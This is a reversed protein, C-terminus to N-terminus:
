QTRGYGQAQWNFVQADVNNGTSDLCEIDFGTADISSVKERVGLPPDVLTVQVRPISIFAGDFTIRKIGASSSNTGPVIRDPMDVTFTAMSVSPTALGSESRLVLRFKFASGVVVGGTLAEWILWEPGSGLDVRRSVQVELEFESEDVGSISQLENLSPWDKILPAAASNGTVMVGAVVYCAFEQTLDIMEDFEFSGESHYSGELNLSLELRGDAVQTNNHVGVFASLDRTEVVNNLKSQGASVVVRATSESLRGGHDKSRVLFCGPRVSVATSSGPWTVTAVPLASVWNADPDVSFRVEYLSLDLANPQPKWSLTGTEGLVALSLGAVDEPPSTLAKAVIRYPASPVSVIGSATSCVAAVEYVRGEELPPTLIAGASALQWNTQKWQGGEERWMAAYFQPVAGVGDQPEVVVAIRPKTSRDRERQMSREDSYVSLVLPPLPQNTRPTKVETLFPDYEPIEGSDADLVGPAALVCYLTATLDPRLVRDRVLLDVPEETVSEILVLDEVNVDIAPVDRTIVVWDRGLGQPRAVTLLVEGSGDPRRVRMNLKWAVESDVVLLEDGSDSWSGLPVNDSSGGIQVARDSWDTPDEMEDLVIKRVYGDVVVVEEVVGSSIGMLVEDRVVRIKDGVDHTLHDIGVDLTIEERRLEGNALHYRGLLYANGQEAQGKKIVLGPVEMNEFIKANSRDYGDNYVLIEHPQWDRAESIVGVRLAHVEKFRRQRMRFNQSNHPTYYGRVHDKARDPMPSYKFDRRMARRRGAACIERLFEARTGESKFSDYTWHEEAFWSDIEELDLEDDTAARGGGRGQLVACYAAAPHNTPRPETWEGDERERAIMRAVVGVQDLRGSLQESSKIRMTMEAIGTPSPLRGERITKISAVAGTNKGIDRELVDHQIRECETLIEWRAAYPFKIRHTFHVTQRTAASWNREVEDSWPGGSDVDRYKFGFRVRNVKLEGEKTVEALGNFSITVIAENAQDRTARIVTDGEKIPVGLFDETIDRSYLKMRDGDDLWKVDMNGLQPYKALTLDRDVNRFELEVDDFRHIATNGIRIEEIRIPGYGLCLRVRMYTDDGSSETYGSASAPPYFLIRGLLMPIVGYPMERNSAGALFYRPDEEEPQPPPPVLATAVLQGLLTATAVFANLGFGTLGLVSGGIFQAGAGAALPILGALPGDADPTVVVTSLAPPEYTEWTDVLPQTVEEAIEVSAVLAAGAVSRGAYVEGIASSLTTGVPFCEIRGQESIPSDFCVVTFTDAM